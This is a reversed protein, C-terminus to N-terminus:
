DYKWEKLAELKAPIVFEGANIKAKINEINIHRQPKITSLNILGDKSKKKAEELTQSLPAAPQPDYLKPFALKMQDVMTQGAADVMADYLKKSVIMDRQRFHENAAEQVKQEFTSPITQFLGRSDVTIEGSGSGWDFSIGKAPIRQGDFTVIVEQDDGGLVIGGPHFLPEAARRRGGIENSVEVVDIM